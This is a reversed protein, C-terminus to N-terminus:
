RLCLLLREEPSIAERFHTNQKRLKSELLNYLVYFEKKTMRIYLKCREDDSRQNIPHVWYERSANHSAILAAIAAVMEEEEDLLDMQEFPCEM